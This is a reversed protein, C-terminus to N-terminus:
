EDLKSLRDIVKNFENKLISDNLKEKFTSYKDIEILWFLDNEIKEKVNDDALYFAIIFNNQSELAIDTICEAMYESLEVNKKIIKRLKFFLLTNNANVLAKDKLLNVLPYLEKIRDNSKFDLKEETKFFNIVKLNLTDNVVEFNKLETSLSKIDEQSFSYNIFSIFFITILTRNIKM